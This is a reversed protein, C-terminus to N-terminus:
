LDEDVATVSHKFYCLDFRHTQINQIHSPMVCLAGPQLTIHSFEPHLPQEPNSFFLPALSTSGTFMLTHQATFSLLTQSEVTLTAAACALLSTPLDIHLFVAKIKANM